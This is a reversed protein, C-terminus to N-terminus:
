KNTRRGSVPEGTREGTKSDFSGEHKKGTKDYVEVDGHQYDWEYIKGKSDIWRKRGNKSRARRANPFAELVAPPPIYLSQYSDSQKSTLYNVGTIIAGGALIFPIAIDDAVGIGTVDDAVLVASMALAATMASGGDGGEADDYSLTGVVENQNHFILGNSGALVYNAGINKHGDLDDSGEQWHVEGTENNEYWDLGDPDINNIPNNAVYHYPNISLSHETNALPDVSMFRGISPDYFRAGYNQYGLDFSKQVEKGNYTYDYNNDQQWDGELELGFPYYHHESVVEENADFVVRTNGLHDKLIWRQQYETPIICEEPNDTDVEAQAAILQELPTKQIYGQSHKFLDLEGDVFELFSIYTRRTTDVGEEESYKQHLTGEADYIYDIFNVDNKDIQEILNLYNRAIDVNRTPDQTMAGNDDYLYQTISKPNAIDTGETSTALGSLNMLQNTGGYYNMTMNDMPNGQSVRTISRINGRPDYGYSTDYHGEQGPATYHGATVRNLYDYDYGYTSPEISPTNWQISSIDGNARGAIDATDDHPNTYRMSQAFLDDGIAQPDNIQTLLRNPTYTYDVKQLNGGIYLTTLLDKADYSMTSLILEDDGQRKLREGILRGIHDFDRSQVFSEVSSNFDVTCHEQIVNDQSDYDYSMVHADEDTLAEIHNSSMSKMLATPLYTYTTVIDDTTNLLRVTSSVKKDISIRDTGYTCSKLFENIDTVLNHNDVPATPHFGEMIPRGYEDNNITFWRGENRREGDQIHTLLDRDDYRMEIPEQDPVKKMRVQDDAYYQTTFILEAHEPGLSTGPPLITTVREKDDYLTYTDNDQNGEADTRRSLVPRGRKDTYSETINGNGDIVTQRHLVAPLYDADAIHDFVTVQSTNVGYEYSMTPFSPPTVTFQRNLPSDEYTTTTFETGLTTVLSDSGGPVEFPESVSTPRSILDYSTNLVIHNARDPAQNLRLTQIPRAMGDVFERTRITVDSEAGLTPFSVATEVFNIPEDHLQYGYTIDTIVGRQEDTISSLRSLGDYDYSSSTSDINIMRRLLEDGIRVVTSRGVEANYSEHTYQPDWRNEFDSNGASVLDTEYRYVRRPYLEDALPDDTVTGQYVGLGKSYFGWETRNGDVLTGNVIKTNEWPIIINRAILEDKVSESLDYGGTYKYEMRYVSGDSNTMEESIPGLQEDRYNYDQRVSIEGEPYHTTNIVFQPVAAQEVPRYPSYFIHTAGSNNAAYPQVRYYPQDSERRFTTLMTTESSQVIEDNTTFLQTNDPVFNDPFYDYPVYPFDRTIDELRNPTPSHNYVTYGGGNDVTQKVRRYGIHNGDFNSLPFFSGSSFRRILTVFRAGFVPQDFEGLFSLAQIAPVLQILSSENSDENTYSYSISKALEDPASYHKISNVRIGGVPENRGVVVREFFSISVEANIGILRLRLVSNLHSTPISGFLEAFPMFENPDYECEQYNIQLRSLMNGSELEEIVAIIGGTRCDTSSNKEAGSCIVSSFLLCYSDAIEQTYVFQTEVEAGEGSPDYALTSCVDPTSLGSIAGPTSDDLPIYSVAADPNWIENSEYDFVTQGGTPNTMISVTGYHQNASSSRDAQGFGLSFTVGNYEVPICSPEINFILDNNEEAHNMFGWKDVAKSLRSPLWDFAPFLPNRHYSFEYPPKSEAGGRERISNLKLRYDFPFEPNEQSKFYDHTFDYIKTRESERIVIEQIAHAESGLDPRTEDIFNPSSVDLRTKDSLVIEVSSTGNYSITHPVKTEYSARTFYVEQETSARHLFNTGGDNDIKGTADVGGVTCNFVPLGLVSGQGVCVENDAIIRYDGYEQSTPFYLGYHNDQYTFDIASSGDYAEIKRLYWETRTKVPGTNKLQIDSIRRSFEARPNVTCGHYDDISNAEGFFYKTGDTDIIVFEDLDNTLPKILMDTRPQQIIEKIDRDIIFKGSKGAFSYTFVDPEADQRGDAIQGLMLQNTLNLIGGDREDAIGVVARSIMGGASLSWGMGVYSAPDSVRVGAANYSLSIPLSLKNANITHLPINIPTVGTLSNATIELLRGEIFAEASPISVQGISINQPQSYGVGCTLLFMIIAFLLHMLESSIRDIQITTILEELKQTSNITHNM